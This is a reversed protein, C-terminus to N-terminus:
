GKKMKKTQMITGFVDANIQLWSKADELVVHFIIGDQSAEETVGFVKKDAYRTKIKSLVILPLNEEGYYRLTKIINGELDYYVRTQIQRQKFSAEFSNSSETWVVETADSFTKNFASLM